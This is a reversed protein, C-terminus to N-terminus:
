EGERDLTKSTRAGAPTSETKVRHRRPLSSSNGAKMRGDGTTGSGTSTATTPTTPTTPPSVPPPISFRDMWLPPSLLESYISNSNNARPSVHIKRGRIQKHRLFSQFGEDNDRHGGGKENEEDDSPTHPSSHATNPSQHNHHTSPPLPTSPSSCSSTLNTLLSQLARLETPIGDDSVSSVEGSIHNGTSGAAVTSFSAYASELLHQSTLSKTVTDSSPSEATQTLHESFNCNESVSRSFISRRQKWSRSVAGSKHTPTTQQQPSADGVKRSHIESQSISPPIVSPPLSDDQSLSYMYTTRGIGNRGRGSKSEDRIRERHEPPPPFQYSGSTGAGLSLRRLLRFPEKATPKRRQRLQQVASGNGNTHLNSHSFLPHPTYHHHLPTYRGNTTTPFKERTPPSGFSPYDYGSHRFLVESGRNHPHRRPTSNTTSTASATTTTKVSIPIPPSRRAPSLPSLPSLPASTSESAPPTATTHVTAATTSNTATLTQRLRELMDLKRKRKEVSSIWHQVGEAAATQTDSQLRYAEVVVPRRRTDISLSGETVTKGNCQWFEDSHLQPHVSCSPFGSTDTTCSLDDAVGVVTSVRGNSSSPANGLVSVVLTASSVRSASVQVNQLPYRSITFDRDHAYTTSGSVSTKKVLETDTLYLRVPTHTTAGDARLQLFDGAVQCNQLFVGFSYKGATASTPTAPSQPPSRPTQFALPTVCRDAASEATRECLQAPPPSAATPPYSPQCAYGYPSTCSADRPHHRKTYVGGGSGMGRSEDRGGVRTLFM